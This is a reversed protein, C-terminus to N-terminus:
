AADRDGDNAIRQWAAPSQSRILSALNARAAAPTGWGALPDRGNPARMAAIEGTRREWFAVWNRDEASINTLPSGWSM